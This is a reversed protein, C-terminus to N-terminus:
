VFTVPHGWTPTEGVGTVSALVFELRLSVYLSSNSRHIFRFMVLKGSHWGHMCVALEHASELRSCQIHDAAASFSVPSMDHYTRCPCVHM